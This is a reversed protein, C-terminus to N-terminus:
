SKTTKSPSDKSPKPPPPPPPKPNTIKQPKIAGKQISKTFGENLPKKKSM